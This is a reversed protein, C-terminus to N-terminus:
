GLTTLYAILKPVDRLHIERQSILCPRDLSDLTSDMAHSIKTKTCRQPNKIELKLSLYVAIFIRYAYIYICVVRLM